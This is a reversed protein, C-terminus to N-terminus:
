FACNGPSAADTRSAVNPPLVFMAYAEYDTPGISRVFHVHDPTEIFVEGASYVTPTCTPDDAEYKEITGNKIAVVGYGLHSHWGSSGGAPSVVKQILVDNVQAPATKDDLRLHHPMVHIGQVAM